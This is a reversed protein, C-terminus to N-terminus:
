GQGGVQGGGKPPVSPLTVVKLTPTVTTCLTPVFVSLDPQAPPVQSAAPAGINIALDVSSDLLIESEDAIGHLHLAAPENAGPGSAGLLAAIFGLIPAQPQIRLLAFPEGNFFYPGQSEFPAGTPASPEMATYTAGQALQDTLGQFVVTGPLAGRQIQWIPIMFPQAPAAESYGPNNGAIFGCYGHTHLAIVIDQDVPANALFSGDITADLDVTVDDYTEPVQTVPDTVPSGGSYIPSQQDLLRLTASRITPAPAPKAPAPAKAIAEAASAPRVGMIGGAALALAIICIVSKRTRLTTEEL